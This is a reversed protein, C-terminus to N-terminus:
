QNALDRIRGEPQPSVTSARRIYESLVDADVFQTDLYDMAQAFVTYGDGGGGVFSNTAVTYQRAPDLPQGGVTIKVVRSGAPKASDYVLTMGSIQPFRGGGEQVQSVGNEMSELLQAGTVSLRVVTNGFPQVSLVDALTIPGAAISNRIGGGNQLGIDTGQTQRWADAILNGLNTERTRVAEPAGELDVTAQGVVEDLRLALEQVFPEILNLIGPDQAILEDASPAGEGERRNYATDPLILLNQSVAHVVAGQEVTLDLRGLSTGLRGRYPGGGARVYVGNPQSLEIPQDAVADSVDSASAFTDRTIVGQFGFTHGGIVIDLEPVSKLLEVDRYTDQHSLAVILDADAGQAAIVARVTEVPDAFITGPLPSSSAATEPNGLGIVLLTLGARQLKIFGPDPEFSLGSVNAGMMPYNSLKMLIELRNESKEFDFEHNGLAAADYGMANYALVDPEGRFVSSLPTGILIDGTDFLAVHDAGVETRIRQVLTARAALGGMDNGGIPRAPLVQGHHEQSHLLTITASSLGQAQLPANGALVSLLGLGLCLFYTLRWARLVM